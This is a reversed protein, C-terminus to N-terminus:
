PPPPPFDDCTAPCDGSLGPRDGFSQILRLFEPVGIAGDGDADIDPDYESDDAVSGFATLMELFDSIGVAGDDDYDQDCLNGIGQCSYGFQCRLSETAM